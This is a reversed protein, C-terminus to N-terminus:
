IQWIKYLKFPRGRRSRKEGLKFLLLTCYFCCSPFRFPLPLITLPYSPSPPFCVQAQAHWIHLDVVKGIRIRPNLAHANYPWLWCCCCCCSCSSFCCCCCCCCRRCRGFVIVACLTAYIHLLATFIAIYMSSLKINFIKSSKRASQVM